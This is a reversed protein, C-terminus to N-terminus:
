QCGCSPAQKKYHKHHHKKHQKHHKHQHQHKHHKKHHHHKHHRAGQYHVKEPTCCGGNAVYEGQYTINAFTSALHMPESSLASESAQTFSAFSLIASLTLLRIYKNM